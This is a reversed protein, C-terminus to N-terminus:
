YAMITVNERPSRIHAIAKDSQVYLEKTCDSSSSQPMMRQVFFVSIRHSFKENAVSGNGKSSM